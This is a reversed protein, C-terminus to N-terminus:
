ESRSPPGVGRKSFASLGEKLALEYVGREAEPASLMEERLQRVFMGRITKEELVTESLASSLVSTEDEIELHFFDDTLAATLYDARVPFDPSGTLTLKLLLDEGGLSRIRELLEGESSVAESDLSLSEEKLTRRNFPRREVRVRGDEFVATLLHREGNEGFSKGELTGPYVVLTERSEFSFFN